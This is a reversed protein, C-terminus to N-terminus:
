HTIVESGPFCETKEYEMTVLVKVLLLIFLTYMQSATTPLLTIVSGMITSVGVADQSCVDTVSRERV